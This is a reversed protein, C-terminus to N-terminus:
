LEMIMRRIHEHQMNWSTRDLPIRRDSNGWGLNILERVRNLLEIDGKPIYGILKGRASIATFKADGWYTFTDEKHYDLIMGSINYVDMDPVDIAQNIVSIIEQRLKSTM